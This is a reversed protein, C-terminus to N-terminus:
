DTGLIRDMFLLGFHKRPNEHHETHFKASLHLSHHQVVTVIAGTMWLHASLWWHPFLVLPLFVPLLNNLVVDVPHSYLSNFGLMGTDEHHKCHYKYFRKTHMLRHITYACLEQTIPCMLLFSLEQGVSFDSLVELSQAVLLSPIVIFAQMKLVHTLIKWDKLTDHPSFHVTLWFAIFYYLISWM